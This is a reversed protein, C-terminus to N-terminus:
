GESIRSIEQLRAYLGERLMLDAHTGQDIIRGGSLVVIIDAEEITSLRHAIVFTTRNRFLRSLAEQVLRESESDLASTAEDLILIEPDRLLSRAIAIRQRQGGSLSAGREGVITDYGDPFAMIFDHAHALRAAKIVERRPIDPRGYAINEYISGYFLFIEQTVIGIRSRHDKFTFNRIDEGDITIRGEQIEFFRALLDMLTSKGAGSEGVLAVMSGAPVTLNISHLVATDLGPYSFTVNEFRIERRLPQPQVPQDPDRAEMPTDMLGFIREGAAIAQAVKSVMGSLQILPRVIFLLIFLFAMFEGVTFNSQDIFLAGLAIVGVTVLASTLEVLNPGAKLYFEQKFRRWYLRYNIREFKEKEIDEAGLSKIVRIGQITENLHANMEGLLNQSRDTSKRIKRSFLTVPALIFPVTIISVLLLKWSLYALLLVHVLLYFINTIADRLNSSIVASVIEVDNILRSMLFGTKERYYYSLPLEQSKRYLDERLDRVAMYGTGAILRVCFLLLILKLLYVPLVVACATYVVKVPSLGAANIRLKGRILTRLYFREVLKLQDGQQKYTANLFTLALATEIRGPAAPVVLALGRSQLSKQLIRREEPSFQISFVPRRDGLADFLPVFATLSVGNFLAVIFSLAVGSFFRARYRLSYRLLRFFYQM